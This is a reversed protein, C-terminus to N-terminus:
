DSLPFAHYTAGNRATCDYKAPCKVADRTPRGSEVKTADSATETATEEAVKVNGSAAAGETTEVSPAPAQAEVEVESTPEASM